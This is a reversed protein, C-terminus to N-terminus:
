AAGEAEELVAEVQSESWDLVDPGHGWTIDEHQQRHDRCNERYGRAIAEPTDHGGGILHMALEWHPDGM